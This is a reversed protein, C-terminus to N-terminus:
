GEAYAEKEFDRVLEILPGNFGVESGMVTDV